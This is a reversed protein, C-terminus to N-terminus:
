QAYTFCAFDGSLLEGCNSCQELMDMGGLLICGGSYCLDDICPKLDKPCFLM